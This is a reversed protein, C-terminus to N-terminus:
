SLLCHACLGALARSFCPFYNASPLIGHFGCSAVPLHHHSAYLSLILLWLCFFSLFLLHLSLDAEPCLAAIRSNRKSVIACFSGVFISNPPMTLIIGIGSHTTVRLHFFARNCCVSRSSESFFRSELGELLSLARLVGFFFFIRTEVPSCMRVTTM